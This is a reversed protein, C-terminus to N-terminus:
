IRTRQVFTPHGMGITAPPPTRSFEGGDVAPPSARVADGGAYEESEGSDSYDDQSEEEIHDLNNTPIAVAVEFDRGKIAGAPITVDYSRGEVEVKVVNGPKADTPCRVVVRELKHGPPIKQKDNLYFTHIMEDLPVSRLKRKRTQDMAYCYVVADTVSSIGELFVRIICASFASVIIFGLLSNRAM